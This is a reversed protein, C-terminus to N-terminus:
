RSPGCSPRQPCCPARNSTKLILTLTFHFGHDRACIRQHHQASQVAGGAARRLPPRWERPANLGRRLGKDGGAAAKLEGLPAPQVGAREANGARVACPWLGQALQQPFWRLALACAGAISQGLLELARVRRVVARARQLLLAAVMGCQSLMGCSCRKEEVAMSYEITWESPATLM